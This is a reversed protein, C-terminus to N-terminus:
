IRKKKIYLKKELKPQTWKGLDISYVRCNMYFNMDLFGREFLIVMGRPASVESSVNKVVDESRM